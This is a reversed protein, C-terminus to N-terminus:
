YRGSIRGFGEADFDGYKEKLGRETTGAACFNDWTGYGYQGGASTDPTITASDGATLADPEKTQDPLVHTCWCLDPTYVTTAIIGRSSSYAEITKGDGAYIAVHYIEGTAANRYFCLDGPVADELSVRAGVQAQDQAVRPLSIGFEGYLTQVFGSCDAGDTLSTGGWVYNNGIYYSANKIISAGLDKKESWPTVSSLSYYFARNDKPSVKETAGAFSGEGAAAVEANVERGGRVSSRPVFGRCDGSEVYLWDSGANEIKYLLGNAPVTGVVTSNADPQETINVASVTLLDHKEAITERTTTNTHTFAENDWIEVTKSAYYPSWDFEAKEEDTHANGARYRAAMLHKAAVESRISSSPIFGRVEGSEVYLWGNGEDKLRYMIGNKMIHGVVQSSTATSMYINMEEAAFVPHKGITEFRLNSVKLYEPTVITRSGTPVRQPGKAEEGNAGASDSAPIEGATDTITLGDTDKQGDVAKNGSNEDSSGNEKEVSAGSSSGVSGSSSQTSATSSSSVTGTESSFDSSEPVSKETGSSVGPSTNEITEQNGANPTQAAPASPVATGTGASSSVISSDSGQSSGTVSSSAATIEDASVALASPAATISAIVLATVIIGLKKRIQNQRM